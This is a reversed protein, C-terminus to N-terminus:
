VFDYPIQNNKEYTRKHKFYKGGFQSVVWIEEEM